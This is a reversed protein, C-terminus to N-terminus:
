HVTKVYNVERFHKESMTKLNTYSHLLAPDSCTVSMFWKTATENKLWAGFFTAKTFDNSFQNLYLMFRAKIEAIYVHVGSPKGTFATPDLFKAVPNPTSTIVPTPVPAAAASNQLHIQFTEMLAQQDQQQLLSMFIGLDFTFFEKPLNSPGAASSPMPTGSFSM